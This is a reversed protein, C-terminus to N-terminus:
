AQPKPHLELSQSLDGTKPTLKTTMADYRAKESVLYDHYSKGLPRVERYWTVFTGGDERYMTETDGAATAAQKLLSEFTGSAAHTRDLVEKSPQRKFNYYPGVHTGGGHGEDSVMAVPVGNLHVEATFCVGEESMWKCEKYKEVTYGALLGADGPEVKVARLMKAPVKFALFKESEVVTYYGKPSLKGEIVGRVVRKEGTADFEVVDGKGFVPLAAREAAKAALAAQAEAPTAIRLNGVSVKWTGKATEIGCREYSTTCNKTAIGVITEGKNTFAYVAGKSTSTLRPSLNAPAPSM